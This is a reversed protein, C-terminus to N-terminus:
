LQKLDLEIKVTLSTEFPGVQQFAIVERRNQIWNDAITEPLAIKCHHNKMDVWPTKELRDVYVSFTLTQPPLSISTVVTDNSLLQEMDAKSLRVRIEDNSIRIKM